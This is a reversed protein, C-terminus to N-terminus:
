RKFKPILSLYIVAIDEIAGGQLWCRPVSHEFVAKGDILIVGYPQSFKSNEWSFSNKAKLLESIIDRSFNLTCKEPDLERAIFVSDAEQHATLISFGDFEGNEYLVSDTLVVYDGEPYVAIFVTDYRSKLGDALKIINKRVDAYTLKTNEAKVSSFNLVLLVMAIFSRINWM